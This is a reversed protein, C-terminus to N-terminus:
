RVKGTAVSQSKTTVVMQKFIICSRVDQNALSQFQLRFPSNPAGGNLLDRWCHRAVSGNIRLIVDNKQVPPGEMVAFHEVRVVRAGHEDDELFLGLRLNMAM